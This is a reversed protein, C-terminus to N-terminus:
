RRRWGRGCPSRKTLRRAVDFVTGVLYAAAYPVRMPGRKTKGGQTRAFPIVERVAIDPKDVYDCVPVGLAFSSAFALVATVVSGMLGFCWHRTGSPRKVHITWDPVASHGM